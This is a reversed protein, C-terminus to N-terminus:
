SQLFNSPKLILLLPTLFLALGSISILIGFFALFSLFSILVTPM